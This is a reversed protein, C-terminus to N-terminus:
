PTADPVAQRSWGALISEAEAQFEGEEEALRTFLRKAAPLNGARLYAHALYWRAPYAWPGEKDALPALVAVAQEPRQALLWSVGLYFDIMPESPLRALATAAAEFRGSRYLAFAEALAEGGETSSARTELPQYPYAQVTPFNGAGPGIPTLRQWAFYSLGLAALVGAATPLYWPLRHSTTKRESANEGIELVSMIRARERCDPCRQLHDLVRDCEGQNLEGRILEPIPMQDCERSQM